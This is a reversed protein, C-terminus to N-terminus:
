KMSAMVVDLSSQIRAHSNIALDSYKQTNWWVAFGPRGDMPRLDYKSLFHELFFMHPILAIDAFSLSNGVAFPGGSLTKELFDFASPLGSTLATEIAVEDPAVRGFMPRSLAATHPAVYVDVIRAVLRARAADLPSGPELDPGPFMANFYEAIIQGEPLCTGDELLLYPIKGLPSEALLEESGFGGPMGALEVKDIADKIELVMYAREYYPSLHVGRLKM